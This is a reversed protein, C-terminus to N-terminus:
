EPASMLAIIYLFFVDEAYTIGEILGTLM